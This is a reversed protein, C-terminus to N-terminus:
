LGALRCNQRGIELAQRPVGLPAMGILSIINPEDRARLLCLWRTGLGGGRCGDSGYHGVGGQHTAVGRRGTGCWAHTGGETPHDSRYYPLDFGRARAV